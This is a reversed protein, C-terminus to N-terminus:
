LGLNVGKATLFVHYHASDIMSGFAPDLKVSGHGALMQGTGVDELTSQASESSYTAVQQSGAGHHIKLAGSVISGTAYVNGYNDVEMFGGTQSNTAVLPFASTTSGVAFVGVYGANFYGGNLNSSYADIGDYVASSNIGPGQGTATASVGPGTSNNIGAIGAGSSYNFYTKCPNYSRCATNPLLHVSARVVNVNSLAAVTGTMLVGAIFVSKVRKYSASM